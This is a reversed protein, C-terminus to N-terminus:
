AVHSVEQLESFLRQHQLILFRPHSVVSGGMSMDDNTNVVFVEDVENLSPSEDDDDAGYLQEPSSRSPICSHDMPSLIQHQLATPRPHGAVTVVVVGLDSCGDIVAGAGVVVSAGVIVAVSREVTVRGAVVVVVIECILVVSSATVVVV